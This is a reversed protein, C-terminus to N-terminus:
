RRSFIKELEAKNWRVVTPRGHCCAFGYDTKSMDSLLGRIEEDSLEDGAKVAAKCAVTKLLERKADYTSSSGEDNDGLMDKIIEGLIKELRHKPFFSPVAEVLLKTKLRGVKLGKILSVKEEVTDIEEPSLDFEIPVLLTQSSVSADKALLQELLVKEHVAHQDLIVLGEGDDFVIYTKFMVLFKEVKQASQELMERFTLSAVTQNQGMQSAWSKSGSSASSPYFSASNNSFSSFGGGFGSNEKHTNGAHLFEGLGGSTMHPSTPLVTSDFGQKALTDRVARKVFAFISREDVFKVEIKRPHVNVDVLDPRVQINIACIPFYGVELMTQFGELVAKILLSQKVPRHNVFIRMGKQTSKSLSPHGIVGTVKIDKGDFSVNMLKDTTLGGLVESMRTISDMVKYEAIKKGQSVLGFEVQPHILAFNQFIETIYGQETTNSKFFKRRAPTNFFLNEVRFTTGASNQVVQKQSIKVGGRYVIETGYEDKSTKTTLTVEAVAGISSLAEGRFGMTRISELDEVKELKSTAHPEFVLDLDKGGIGKGNDRVTIERKGADVVELVIKTAGADLSNEIMEKVISAPREVVEGAAIKNVVAQSLKKIM